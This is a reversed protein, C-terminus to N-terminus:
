HCATTQQVAPLKSTMNLQQDHQSQNRSSNRGIAGGVRPRSSRASATQARRAKSSGSVQALGQTKALGSGSQSKSSRWWSIPMRTVNLPNAQTPRRAVVLAVWITNNTTRTASDSADSSHFSDGPAAVKRSHVTCAAQRFAILCHPQATRSQM